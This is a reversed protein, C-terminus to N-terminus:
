DHKKRPTKRAWIEYGISKGDRGPRTKRTFTELDDPPFGYHLRSYRTRLRSAPQPSNTIAILAWADTGGERMQDLARLIRDYDLRTTLSREDPLYKKGPVHDRIQPTSHITM